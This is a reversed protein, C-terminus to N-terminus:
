AATASATASASAAPQPAGPAALLVGLVLGILHAEAFTQFHSNFLSTVLWAAFLALGVGRYPAPAPQRLVGAAFALFALAGPIGAEVLVRLYQNQPDKVEAHWAADDQRAIARSYAPTFGGLGFGLVPRQAILERTVKWIVIRSGISTETRVTMATDMEGLGTAFRERVMSSSGLVAAGLLIVGISGWWRWRGTTLAFAALGGAVLLAVHASRGTTVLALNAVFLAMAALLAVRRARSAPRGWGLMAALVIGVVLAMGQTTHNRLIVGPQDILVPNPLLYVVFSAVAAFGLVGVLALAFRDRERDAGFLSSAVLLLLLPRWSWWEALRRSWPVGDAWLMALALTALLAVIGRALPQSWLARLRAGAAPALFFAILGLFAGINALPPSTFSGVAAVLFLARAADDRSSRTAPAARQPEPVM